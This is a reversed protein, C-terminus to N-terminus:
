LEQQDNFESMSKMLDNIVIQSFEKSSDEGLTDALNRIEQIKTLKQEFFDKEEQSEAENIRQKFYNCTKMHQQDSIKQLVTVFDKANKPFEEDPLKSINVYIEQIVPNCIGNQLLDLLYTTKASQFAHKKLEQALSVEIESSTLLSKKISLIELISLNLRNNVSV